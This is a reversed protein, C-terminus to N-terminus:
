LPRLAQLAKASPSGPEARFIILHQGGSHPVSLRNRRLYLDGVDPHRMHTIGARYGVDARAWLERFRPSAASLEDILARMRPDDSASGAVERLGSVAVDTAEDWDVFFERAAPDVLRWRLFNQGPAFGPSLARAIPNAALM